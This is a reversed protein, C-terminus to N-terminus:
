GCIKNSHEQSLTYTMAQSERGKLKMLGFTKGLYRKYVKSFTAESMLIRYPVDEPLTKTMAELRAATNVTDGFVSYNVRRRNGVSGATVTGTHIGIGINIPPQGTEILELNLEEVRQIMEVSATVAAIADAQIEDDSSRPFPIGFVAMIADGIYKDVVGGHQMICDTMGEFYRNLWRILDDSAMHESISTFDRIDMFLVTATLEQPQLQGDDLLEDRRSWILQAMEPAVHMSFLNMMQQKELQEQWQVGLVTLLVTGIPAAMPIWWNGLFCLFGISFWSIPILFSLLLRGSLKQKSLVVSTGLSIGFLLFVAIWKPPRRLFQDNLLNDILAAHLYIGSTPPEYNLPIRLPDMGTATVGVLVIKNRFVSSDITRDLVDAFSYVQLRNRSPTPIQETTRNKRPQIPGPWNIWFPEPPTDERQTDQTSLPSNPSDKRIRSLVSDRSDLASPGSASSLESAETPAILTSDLIAEYMIVTALSLAPYDGEYLQVHRSIGDSDALNNVHGVLFSGDAQKKITPSLDLGQGTSDGGVALTVNGSIAIAAAFDEDSASPEVFLVDFGVVAPQVPLLTELLSAYRDRSWPFPGYERLSKNDIAIVAIRDDWGKHPLVEIKNRLKFLSNYSSDEIREWGGLAWIGLSCVAAVVGPLVSTRFLPSRFTSVLRSRIM